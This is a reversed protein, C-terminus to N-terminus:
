EDATLRALQRQVEDLRAQLLAVEACLVPVLAARDVQDLRPGAPAGSAAPDGPRLPLYPQTSDPQRTPDDSTVPPGDLLRAFESFPIVPRHGTCAACTGFLRHWGPLVLEARIFMAAPRGCGCRGVRVATIRQRAYRLGREYRMFRGSAVIELMVAHRYHPDCGLARADDVTRLCYFGCDCWRSPSRHQCGQACEADATVGYISSRGLTIGSFGGRLGDGSMMPHALKFGPLPAAPREKPARFRPLRM